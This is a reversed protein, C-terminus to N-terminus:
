DKRNIEAIIKKKVFRHFRKGGYHGYLLLKEYNINKYEHYFSDEEKSRKLHIYIDIKNKDKTHTFGFVPPNHNIDKLFKQIREIKKEWGSMVSPTNRLMSYM